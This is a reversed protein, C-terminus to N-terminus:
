LWFGTVRGCFLEAERGRFRWRFSSMGALVSSDYVLLAALYVARTRKTERLRRVVGGLAPVVDARVDAAQSITASADVGCPEDLACVTGCSIAASADVVGCPEDLACVTGRSIRLGVAGSVEDLLVVAHAPLESDIVKEDCPAIYTALSYAGGCCVVTSQDVLLLRVACINGFLLNTPVFQGDAGDVAPVSLRQLIDEKNIINADKPWNSPCIQSM